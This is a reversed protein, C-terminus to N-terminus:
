ATDTIHFPVRTVPGTSIYWSSNVRYELVGASEERSSGPDPARRQLDSDTSLLEVTPHCRESEPAVMM